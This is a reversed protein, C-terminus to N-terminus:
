NTKRTGRIEMAKTTTKEVKPVPGIPYVQIGRKGEKIYVVVDPRGRKYTHVVRGDPLEVIEDM